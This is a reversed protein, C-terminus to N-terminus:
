RGNALNNRAGTTGPYNGRGFKELYYWPNIEPNLQSVLGSIMGIARGLYIFDQPVQFPFDYLLDRFERSLEQM